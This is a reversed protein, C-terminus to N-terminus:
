MADRGYASSKYLFYLVELTQAGKCGGVLCKVGFVSNAKTRMHCASDDCIKWSDSYKKVDQQIFVALQCALSAYPM